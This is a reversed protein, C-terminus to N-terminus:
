IAMYSLQNSRWGTVSSTLSELERMTAMITPSSVEPGVKEFM